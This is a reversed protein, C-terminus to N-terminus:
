RATPSASTARHRRLGRPDAQLGGGAGRRHPVRRLQDADGEADQARLQATPTGGSAHRFQDLRSLALDASDKPLEPHKDSPTLMEACRLAAARGFVVLDILSNSGLRNAGHVSVCAAEGLAMLGPMVTDPDGNKKTLAEGHYNTAIGGMNYHVTPVIPIPERTM